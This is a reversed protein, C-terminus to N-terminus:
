EDRLGCQYKFFAWLAPHMKHAKKEASNIEYRYWSNAAIFIMSSADVQRIGCDKRLKKVESATPYGPNIINAGECQLKFLAWFVPPMRAILQANSSEWRSWSRLSVFIMAAAKAQSLGHLKRLAAVEDPSPPAPRHHTM